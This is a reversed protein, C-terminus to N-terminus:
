RSCCYAKNTPSGGSINVFGGSSCSSGNFTGGFVTSAPAGDIEKSWYTNAMNVLGAQCAVQLQTTGCIEKGVAMCASASANHPNVAQIGQDICFAGYGVGTAVLTMGAPCSQIDAMASSIPNTNISLSTNGVQMKMQGCGTLVLISILILNSNRM